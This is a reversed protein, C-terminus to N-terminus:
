GARPRVSLWGATELQRHVVEAAESQSNRAVVQAWGKGPEGRIEDFVARLVPDDPSTVDVPCRTGEENEKDELHGTLLPREADGRASRPRFM